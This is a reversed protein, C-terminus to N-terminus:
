PSREALANVIADQAARVADGEALHHNCFIVFALPVDDASPVYGSLASVHSLTGTKARMRGRAPATGRFRYELTGGEGATPLSDYFASRTAPSAETWVYELLRIMSRPPVLNHRSLGSGDVLHIRSTDLGADALSWRVAEVGLPSSGDPLDKATTDPPAEVALTRLLQEAYLNKSEHNLTRLIERLPPSQYSAVPRLAEDDYDPTISLQDVDVPRGDVSIGARLLVERLVHTFYRTPETVAIAEDESQGPHVRSTVHITNTGLPREYEEDTASDRPVTRTRNVVTVFDTRHPRWTVRAPTGPERGTVTLDVTNENFVLGGIEAAYDYSLDDWSWGTGLPTEDFSADDGIIDGEIHRVGRQRLSDAWRQFVRVADDRQHHGGLTPDGSGRVILNGHLVGNRIPGDVYVPTRYRYRPGLRDLAAATTLLKVNSAPVFSHDANRAYLVQGTRLDLVQIGWLASGFSPADITDTITRALRARAASDASAPQACALSPGALLVCLGALLWLSSGFGRLSLPPM